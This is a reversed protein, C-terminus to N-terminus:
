SSTSNRTVLLKYEKNYNSNDFIVLQHHKTLYPNEPYMSKIINYYSWVDFQTKGYIEYNVKKPYSIWTYVKVDKLLDRENCDISILTSIRYKITTNKQKEHIFTCKDGKICTGQNYFKCPVTKYNM